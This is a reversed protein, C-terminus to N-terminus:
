THAPASYKMSYSPGQHAIIVSIICIYLSLVVLITTGSNSLDTPSPCAQWTRSCTQRRSALRFGTQEVFLSRPDSYAIWSPRFRGSTRSRTWGRTARCGTPSTVGSASTRAATRRAGPSGSSASASWNAWTSVSSSYRSFPVPAVARRRWFSARLFPEYPPEKRPAGPSHEAITNFPPVSGNQRRPAGEFEYPLTRGNRSGAHIDLSPPGRGTNVGHM